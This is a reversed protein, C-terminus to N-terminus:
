RTLEEKPPKLVLELGADGNGSRPNEGL